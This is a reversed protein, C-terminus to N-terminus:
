NIKIEILENMKEKKFLKNIKKLKSVELAEAFLIVKPKNEEIENQLAEIHELQKIMAVLSGPDKCM